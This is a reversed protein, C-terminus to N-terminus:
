EGSLYHNYARNTVMRGPEPEKKWVEFHFCDVKAQDILGPYNIPFHPSLRLDYPHIGMSSM